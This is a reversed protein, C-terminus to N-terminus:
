IINKFIRLAVMIDEMEMYNYQPDNYKTVDIGEELGKRIKAMQLWSLEKNSYKSIDLNRELGKKIEIMQDSDYYSKAYVDINIDNVIGDYIVELQYENFKDIDIGYLIFIDKNNIDDNM